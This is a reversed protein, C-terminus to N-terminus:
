RHSRTAAAAAAAPRSERPAKQHHPLPPLGQYVPPRGVQPRPPVGGGGGTTPVAAGRHEHDHHMPPSAGVLGVYRIEALVRTMQADTPLVETTAHASINRWARLPELATHYFPPGYDHELSTRLRVLLQGFTLKDDPPVRYKERLRAEVQSRM